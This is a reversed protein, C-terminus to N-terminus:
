LSMFYCIFYTSESTEPTEVKKKEILSIQFIFVLACKHTIGMRWVSITFLRALMATDWILSQPWNGQILSDM